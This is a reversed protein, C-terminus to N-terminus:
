NIIRCTHTPPPRKCSKHVDAYMYVKRWCVNPLPKSVSHKMALYVHKAKLSDSEPWEVQIRWAPLLKLFTVSFYHTPKSSMDILNNAVLVIFTRRSIMTNKVIITKISVLQWRCFCKAVLLIVVVVDFILIM